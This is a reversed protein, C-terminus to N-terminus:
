AGDQPDHRVVAVHVGLVEGRVGLGGLEDNVPEDALAPASDIASDPVCFVVINPTGEGPPRAPLHVLPHAVPHLVVRERCGAVLAIFIHTSM